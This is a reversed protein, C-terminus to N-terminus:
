SVHCLRSVISGLPFGVRDIDEAFTGAEGFVQLRTPLRRCNIYVGTVLPSFGELSFARQLVREWCESAEQEM